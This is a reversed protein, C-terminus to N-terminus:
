QRGTMWVRASSVVCFVARLALFEFGLAVMGNRPLEPPVPDERVAQRQGWASLGGGEALRDHDAEASSM